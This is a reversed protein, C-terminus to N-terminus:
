SVYLALSPAARTLLPCAAVVAHVHNTRVNLAKLEWERVAAVERTALEVANRHPVSSYMPPFRMGARERHVRPPNADLLPSGPLVHSRDVTGRADGHLRTGYATYTLFYAAPRGHLLGDDARDRRVPLNEFRSTVPAIVKAAQERARSRGKGGSATRGLPIM